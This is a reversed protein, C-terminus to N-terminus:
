GRNRQFHRFGAPREELQRIASQEIEADKKVFPKFRTSGRDIGNRRQEEALNVEEPRQIQERDQTDVRRAVFKRPPPLFGSDRQAGVRDNGQAKEATETEDTEVQPVRVLKRRAPLFGSDRQGEVSNIVQRKEVTKTDQTDGQLVGRLKRQPLSFGSDRQGGVGNIAPPKEATETEDTEVQPV